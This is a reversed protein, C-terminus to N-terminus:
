FNPIIGSCVSYLAPADLSLALQAPLLQQLTNPVEDSTVPFLLASPLLPSPTTTM